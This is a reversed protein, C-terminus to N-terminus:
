HRSYGGQGSRSEASEAQRYLGHCAIYEEVARPTRFRISQGRAVRRRIDSSSFEVLPMEILHHRIEALREPSVIPRLQEFDPEPSGPRHAVLPDALRCIEASERWNPLDALMDAGLILFVTAEPREQRLQRLTDVTYSVGGRELECKWVRFAKHGATALELMEARMKGPALVQEQKHPPRASPVFWVEDLSWQEHACEALLLHGYHVPDFSGGLLGVRM